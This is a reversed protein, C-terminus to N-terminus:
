ILSGLRKRPLSTPNGVQKASREFHTVKLLPDPTPANPNEVFSNGAPDEIIFTFPMDMGTMMLAMRALVTDVKEAVEPAHERRYDQEEKLGDIM